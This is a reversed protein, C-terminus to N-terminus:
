HIQPGKKKKSTGSSAVALLQSDQLQRARSIIQLEKVNRMLVKELWDLMPAAENDFTLNDILAELESSEDETVTMYHTAQGM